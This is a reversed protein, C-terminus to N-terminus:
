KSVDEGMQKVFNRLYFIYFLINKKSVICDSVTIHLAHPVVFAVIADRDTEGGGPHEQAVVGAVHLEEGSICTCESRLGM